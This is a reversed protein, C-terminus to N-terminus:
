KSRKADHLKQNINIKPWVGMKNIAKYTICLQSQGICINKKKANFGHSHHQKFQIAIMKIFKKEIIKGNWSVYM